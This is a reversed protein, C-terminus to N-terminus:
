QNVTEKAYLRGQWGSIDLMRSLWRQRPRTRLSPSAGAHQGHRRANDQAQVPGRSSGRPLMRFGGAKATPLTLATSMALGYRNQGAGAPAGWSM